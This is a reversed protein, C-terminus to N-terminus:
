KRLLGHLNTSSWSELFSIGTVIFPVLFPTFGPIKPLFLAKLPTLTALFFSLLHARPHTM